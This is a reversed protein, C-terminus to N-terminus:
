KIIILRLYDNLNFSNYRKSYSKKVMIIYHIFNHNIECKVKNWNGKFVSLCCKVILVILTELSTQIINGGSPLNFQATNQKRAM